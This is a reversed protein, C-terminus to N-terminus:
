RLAEATRRILRITTEDSDFVSYWGQPEHPPDCLYDDGPQWTEAVPRGSGGWGWFNCGVLGCAADKDRLLRDFVFAYFADRGTVTADPSFANGDRPYGFEEIVCPKRLRVAMRRHLDIYKEAERCAGPLDELLRDKAAWGWNAPWVHVTLYDVEPIAHVEMCLATDSECGYLGESGTSVLHRPDTEKILTAARRTWEAFARKNDRAFPRPENCLQWAMIAPDDRYARGTVRNTRSVIARVHDLYLRQAEKDRAFAAAYDVYRRYGEGSANPSDGHGTARLYFGFGGSWDWSNTLYLVAKMDRRGMEALLFDLGALLTDNYMGPERQLVPRVSNAERSGGDAGVLIRLNDAGIAHLRDLEAALRARDGGAGESALIPGYWFNTGVYRYPKGKCFFRGERVTVFDDGPPDACPRAALATGGGALLLLLIRLFLNREMM